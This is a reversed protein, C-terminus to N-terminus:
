RWRSVLQAGTKAKRPDCHAHPRVSRVIPNRFFTVFPAVLSEAGSEAFGSFSKSGSFLVPVSVKSLGESVSFQERFM